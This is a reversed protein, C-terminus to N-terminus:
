PYASYTSSCKRLIKLLDMKQGRSKVSLRIYIYIVIKKVSHSISARETEDLTFNSVRTSRPLIGIEIIYLISQHLYDDNTVYAKIVPTFSIIEQYQSTMSNLINTDNTM